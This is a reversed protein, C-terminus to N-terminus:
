RSQTFTSPAQHEQKRGPESLNTHNGWKVSFIFSKRLTRRRLSGAFHWASGTKQVVFPFLIARGPGVSPSKVGCEEMEQPLALASDPSLALELGPFWCNPVQVCECVSMLPEQHHGANEKKLYKWFCHAPYMEPRRLAMSDGIDGGHIGAFLFGDEVVGRGGLVHRESM